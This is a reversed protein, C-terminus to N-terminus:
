LLPGWPRPQAPSLKGTAERLALTEYGDMWQYAPFHYVRGNPACIQVYNCYWPDKPFFSCREKHLRIIILEGLDQQCRVTYEDVQLACAPEPEGRAAEGREGRGRGAPASGKRVPHGSRPARKGGRWGSQERGPESVRGREVRLERPGM